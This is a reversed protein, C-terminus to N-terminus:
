IVQEQEEERPDWLEYTIKGEIIELLAVDEAELRELSEVLPDMGRKLQKARRSVVNILINPDSIVKQARKLLDIRM